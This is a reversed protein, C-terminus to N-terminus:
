HVVHFIRRWRAFGEIKAALEREHGLRDDAPPQTTEQEVDTPSGPVLLGDLRAVTEEAAIRDGVAPVILPTTTSWSPFGTGCALTRRASSGM